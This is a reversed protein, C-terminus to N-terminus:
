AENYAGGPMDISPRPKEIRRPGALITSRLVTGARVRSSRSLSFLIPQAVSLVHRQVARPKDSLANASCSRHAVSLM